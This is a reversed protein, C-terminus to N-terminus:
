SEVEEDYLARHGTHPVQGVAIFRQPRDIREDALTRAFRRRARHLRVRVTGRSCGLAVAVEARDLDEWHVLGLIEQDAPGLRGFARAIAERSPHPDPASWMAIQAIETQLRTSLRARRLEGRRHNALVKRAVGFLWPRARPGSPVADIRRWAVVFVDAVVDAAVDSQDVRRLAYGLLAPAHQRYLAEFQREHDVEQGGTVTEGM